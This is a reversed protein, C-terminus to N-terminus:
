KEYKSIERELYWKAKKLETLDDDKKGKRLIYKITNGLCFSLNFDEIVDIAEMGNKGKYHSPSNVMDKKVIFYKDDVDNDIQHDNVREFLADIEADTLNVIDTSPNNQYEAVIKTAYDDQMAKAIDLTENVLQEIKEM